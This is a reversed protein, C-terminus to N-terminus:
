AGELEGALQALQLCPPFVVLLAYVFFAVIFVWAPAIFKLAVVLPLTVAVLLMVKLLHWWIARHLRSTNM